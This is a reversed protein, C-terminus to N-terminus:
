CELKNSPRTYAQCINHEGNHKARKLAVEANDMFQAFTQGEHYVVLGVCVGDALGHEELKKMMDLAFQHAEDASTNPLIIMLKGLQWQALQYAKPLELLLRMEIDQQRKELKGRDSIHSFVGEPTIEMLMMSSHLRKNAELSKFYREVDSFSVLIASRFPITERSRMSHDQKVPLLTCILHENDADAAAYNNLLIDVNISSGDALMSLHGQWSGKLSIQQQIQNWQPEIESGFLEILTKDLRGGLRLFHDFQNNVQILAGRHDVLAVPIASDALKKLRYEREQVHILESVDNINIIFFDQELYQTSPASKVSIDVVGAGYQRLDFQSLWTGKKAYQAMLKQYEGMELHFIRSLTREILKDKSCNLILAAAQNAAVVRGKENAILVGHEDNFLSDVLEINYGRARKELKYRHVFIILLGALLTLVISSLLMMQKWHSFRSVIDKDLVFSVLYYNRDTDGQTTLDVKLFVITANSTHFQGFKTLAIERWVDPFAQAFSGGIAVQIQNPNLKNFENGSYITGQTDLVSVVSHHVGIDPKIKQITQNLSTFTVVFGERGSKHNKVWSVQYWYPELIGNIPVFKIDSSYVNQGSYARKNEVVEKPLRILFNNPSSSFEINGQADFVAVELLDPINRILNAWIGLLKQKQADTPDDFYHNLPESQAFTRTRFEQFSVNDSLLTGLTQLEGYRQTAWDNQLRREGVNILVNMLIVMGLVLMILQSALALKRQYSWTIGQASFLLSKLQPISGQTLM